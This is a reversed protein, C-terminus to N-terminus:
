DTLRSVAAKATRWRVAFKLAEKGDALQRWCHTLARQKKGDAVASPLPLTKAMLKAKGDAVTPLNALHGMEWSACTPAVHGRQRRGGIAFTDKGDAASPLSGASGRKIRNKKYGVIIVPFIDCCIYWLLWCMYIWCLLYGDMCVYYTACLEMSGYM